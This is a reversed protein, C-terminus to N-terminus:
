YFSFTFTWDDLLTVLSPSKMFDLNMVIQVADDKERRHSILCVHMNCHGPLLLEIKGVTTAKQLFSNFAALILFWIITWIGVPGLTAHPWCATHSPYGIQLRGLLIDTEHRQQGRVGATNSYRPPSFCESLVFLSAWKVCFVSNKDKECAELSM